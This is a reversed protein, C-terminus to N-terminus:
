CDIDDRQDKRKVCRYKRITPRCLYYVLVYGVLCVLLGTELINIGSEKFEMEGEYVTADLVDASTHSFNESWPRNSCFPDVAGAKYPVVTLLALLIMKMVSM